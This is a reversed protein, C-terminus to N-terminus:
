LEANFQEDDDEEKVEDDKKFQDARQVIREPIKMCETFGKLIAWKMDSLERKSKTRIGDMGADMITERGFTWYDELIQWGKSKMMLEIERADHLDKEELIFAPLGTKPNINAKM